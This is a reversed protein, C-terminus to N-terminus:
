NLMLPGICCVCCFIVYGISLVPAVLTLLLVRWAVLEISWHPSDKGVDALRTADMWGCFCLGLLVLIFVLVWLVRWSFRYPESVTNHIDDEFLLNMQMLMMLTGSVFLASSLIQLVIAALAHLQTRFSKFTKLVLWFGELTQDQDRSSRERLIKFRGIFVRFLLLLVETAVLTAYVVWGFWHMESPVFITAPFALAVICAIACLFLGFVYFARTFRDVIPWERTQRSFCCNKIVLTWTVAFSAEYESEDLKNVVFAGDTSETADLEQKLQLGLTSPTSYDCSNPAEVSSTTSLPVLEDALTGSPVTLASLNFKFPM